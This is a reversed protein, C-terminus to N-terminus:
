LEKIANYAFWGCMIITGIILIPRIMRLTQCLGDYSFELTGMAGMQVQVPAPCVGDNQFVDLPKLGNLDISQEPIGLDEYATNEGTCQPAAPNKTCLDQNQQEGSPNQPTTPATPSTPSTPETPAAPTTPTTPSTPTTPTTPTSPKNPILATRTPAQPSNPVLDPRPIVTTTISGDRNITIQTQQPMNSGTPTYPATTATAPTFETSTTSDPVVNGMKALQNMLEAHNTQQNELMRKLIDKIDNQNLTMEKIIKDQEAPTQGTVKARAVQLQADNTIPTYVYGAVKDYGEPLSGKYWGNCNGGTCYGWNYSGNYKDIVWAYGEINLRPRVNSGSGIDVRRLYLQSYSGDKNKSAEALMKGSTTWGEAQKAASAAGEAAKKAAAAAIARGLDGSQEAQAQATAAQQAAQALQGSSSNPRISTKDLFNNVGSGFGTFDLKSLGELVAGFGERAAGGWDGNKAQKYARAAFDSGIAGGAATLGALTGGAISEIKGTSVRQTVQTNITAKNGHADTVTVRQNQTGTIQGGGSSVTPKGTPRSEVKWIGTKPDYGKQRLAQESPFGANQHQAPPPLTAEALSPVPNFAAIIGVVYLTVSRNFIRSRTDNRM